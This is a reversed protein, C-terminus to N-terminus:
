KSGLEGVEYYDCEELILDVSMECIWCYGNEYYRCDGWLECPQKFTVNNEKEDKPKLVKPIDLEKIGHIMIPYFSDCNIVLDMDRFFPRKHKLFDIIHNFLDYPNKDDTPHEKWDQIDKATIGELILCISTYYKGSMKFAQINFIVTDESYTTEVNDDRILIIDKTVEYKDIM